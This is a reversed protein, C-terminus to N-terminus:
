AWAASGLPSTTRSFIALSGTRRYIGALNHHYAAAGLRQEIAKEIMAISQQEQGEVALVLPLLHLADPDNPVANLVSRYLNEAQALDGARHHEIGAQLKDKM